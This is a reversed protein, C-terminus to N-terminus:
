RSQGHPQMVICLCPCLRSAFAAGMRRFLLCPHPSLHKELTGDSSHVAEICRPPKQKPCTFLSFLFCYHVCFQDPDDIADRAVLVDIALLHVHVDLLGDRRPQAFLEIGFVGAFKLDRQVAGGAVDGDVALAVDHGQAHHTSDARLGDLLHHDLEDALVLAAANVFFVLIPNARDDGPRDGPKFAPRHDDVQAADFPDHWSRLLDGTLLVLDALSDLRQDEFHAIRGTGHLDNQAARVRFQDAPQELAFNRFDALARDFDLRQRALRAM